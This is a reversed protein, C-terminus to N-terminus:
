VEVGNYMDVGNFWPRRSSARMETKDGYDGLRRPSASQDIFIARRIAEEAAQNQSGRIGDRHLEAEAYACAMVAEDHQYGCVTVDTSSTLQDPYVRARNYVKYATTPVPYFLAEWRVGHTADILSNPVARVAAISPDGTTVSSSLLERIVREEVVSIRHTPGAPEYTWSGLLEGYFGQPLYYRYGEAEIHTSHAIHFSDGEEPADSFPATVLRGTASINNSILQYEGELEGSDFRLYNGSYVDETEGILSTDFFESSNTVSTITGEYLYPELQINFVPMLFNWYPHSNVFRRYGDNVLRKVLDLDHADTPVAVASSGSNLAIGLFEAVRLQMNTFTLRLTPAAM